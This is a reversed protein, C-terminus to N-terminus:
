EGLPHKVKTGENGYLMELQNRVDEIVRLCEEPDEGYYSISFRYGSKATKELEIKIPREHLSAKIKQVANNMEQLTNEMKHVTNEIIGVVDPRDTVVM